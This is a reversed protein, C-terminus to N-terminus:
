SQWVPVGQEQALATFVASGLVLLMCQHPELDTPYGYVTTVIEELIEPENAPMEQELRAVAAVPELGQERCHAALYAVRTCALAANDLAIHKM